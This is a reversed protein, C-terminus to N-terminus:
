VDAIERNIIKKIRKDLIKKIGYLISVIIIIILIDIAIHKSNFQQQKFDGIKTQSDNNIIVEEPKDQSNGM